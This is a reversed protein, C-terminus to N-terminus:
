KNLKLLIDAIKRDNNLRSIKNQAGLRENIKLWKYFTGNKLITIKPPALILNNSRKTEYDSNNDKLEEDLIRCFLNLDKPVDEFEILWEHGGSFKTIFIPAVTYEHLVASTKLCANKIAKNTNNSILEEGFVNIQNNTRGSIKIRYPSLSTFSIIDGILYRWLGANTTIVVIYDQNKVVEFLQYYKKEEKGFQDYKIFEFFIGYDLMLLMEDSNAQDQVAFFGESANYSELYNMKNSPIINQFQKKYPGFNVGGHMYLELKPWVELINNAGTKELVKKLIILIWSPVGSLNTINQKSIEDVILKLKEEWDKMLATSLKPSRHFNVWSPFNSLLIASLDGESYGKLKNLTGGLIFGRGSFFHKTPFNELYLALMDKGGKFHCNILSESTIPIFKSKANTTGSSKAFWKTKSNWLINEEGAQIKLIYPFLDEYTRTPVRNIYSSYSKINKFDHEKGFLTNKGNKILYNFTLEQATHPNKIFFDIKKLRTKLAYSLISNKM